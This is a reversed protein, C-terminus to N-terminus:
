CCLTLVKRERTTTEMRLANAVSSSDEAALCADIFDTKMGRVLTKAYM